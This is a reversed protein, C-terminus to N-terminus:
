TEDAFAAVLPHQCCVIDIIIVSLCDCDHVYAVGDCM